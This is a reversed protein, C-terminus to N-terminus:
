LAKETRCDVTVTEDALELTVPDGSLKEVVVSDKTEVVHLRSGQWFITFELRSWAEPLAPRIRLRGDLMRVGGFGFVACQWIGAVSGANNGKAKKHAGPLSQYRYEELKKAIAPDTFTFYPLIFMETDWFTHGKYAEGSLGKAGINMRNDHAPTMALVDAANPLETVENEDFKNFTGAVFLNRQEGLYREETACRLGMYGNGQCMVAECKGPLEPDFGSEALVWDRAASYDMLTKKRGYWIGEEKTPRGRFPRHDM